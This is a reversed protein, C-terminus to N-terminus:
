RVPIIVPVVATHSEGARWMAVCEYAKHDEQCAAMFEARQEADGSIAVVLVAITAATILVVFLILGWCDQVFDIFDRM